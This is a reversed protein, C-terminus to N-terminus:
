SVTATGYVGSVVDLQESGCLAAALMGDTSLDSDTPVSVNSAVAFLNRVMELVANLMSNEAPSATDTRAICEPMQVVLHASLPVDGGKFTTGYQTLACNKIQSEIRLVVRRIGKKTTEGRLTLNQPQNVAQEGDPTVIPKLRTVTQPAGTPYWENPVAPSPYTIM